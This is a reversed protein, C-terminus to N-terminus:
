KDANRAEMESKLYNRIADILASPSVSTIRSHHFGTNQLREWLERQEDTVDGLLTHVTHEHIANRIAEEAGDLVALMCARQEDTDLLRTYSRVGNGVVVMTAGLQLAGVNYVCGWQRYRTRKGDGEKIYLPTDVIM